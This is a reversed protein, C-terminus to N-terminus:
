FKIREDIIFLLSLTAKPLLLSVNPNELDLNGLAIYIM